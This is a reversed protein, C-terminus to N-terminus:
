AERQFSAWRWVMGTIPGRWVRQRKKFYTESGTSSYLYKVNTVFSSADMRYPYIEVSVSSKFDKNEEVVDKKLIKTTKLYPDEESADNCEACNLGIYIYKM